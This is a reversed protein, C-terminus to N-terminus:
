SIELKIIAAQTECRYAGVRGGGGEVPQRPTPPSSGWGPQFGVCFAARVHGMGVQEHMVGFISVEDAEGFLVFVLDVVM